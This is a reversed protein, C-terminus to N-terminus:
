NNKSEDIPKQKDSKRLKTRKWKKYNHNANAFQKPMETVRESFGIVIIICHSHYPCYTTAIHWTTRKGNICKDFM